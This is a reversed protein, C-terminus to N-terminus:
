MPGVQIIWAVRVLTSQNTVKIVHCLGKMATGLKTSSQIILPPFRPPVDKSNQKGVRRSVAKRHHYYDYHKM